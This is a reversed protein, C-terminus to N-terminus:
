QSGPGYLYEHVKKQQRQRRTPEKVLEYGEQLLAHNALVRTAFKGFSEQNKIAETELKLFLGAPITVQITTTRHEPIQNYVLESITHHLYDSEDADWAGNEIYQRIADHFIFSRQTNLANVRLALEDYLLYHLGMDITLPNPDHAVPAPTYILKSRKKDDWYPVNQIYKLFIIQLYFGYPMGYYDANELVAAFERNLRLRVGVSTQHIVTNYGKRRVTGPRDHIKPRGPRKKPIELYEDM